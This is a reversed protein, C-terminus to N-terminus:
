AVSNRGSLKMVDDAECLQALSMLSPPANRINLERSFARQMAQWELLLALGASDATSVKSLDILSVPKPGGFLKDTENFLAPATEFTLPGALAVSGDGSIEIAAAKSM